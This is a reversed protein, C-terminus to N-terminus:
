KNEITYFFVSFTKGGAFNQSKYIEFPSMAMLYEQQSTMPFKTLIEAMFYTQGRGNDALEGGGIYDTNQFSKTQADQNGTQFRKSVKSELQLRGNQSDKLVITYNLGVDGEAGASKLGQFWEVPKNKEIQKTVETYVSFDDRYTLVRSMPMNIVGQAFDTNSMQGSVRSEQFLLDLGKASVEAYYVHLEYTKSTPDETPSPKRFLQSELHARIEDQSQDKIDKSGAAGAAKSGGADTSAASQTGNATAAPDDSNGSLGGTVEVQTGQGSIYQRQSLGFKKAERTITETTGRNSKLFFFTGAFLSVVVIFFVATANKFIKSVITEAPPKYTVMEIGCKACFPDKPQEFQCKPCKVLM